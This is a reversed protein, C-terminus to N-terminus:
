RIELAVPNSALEIVQTVADGVIFAHHVSAGIFPTGVGPPLNFGASGNGLEDLVGFSGPLIASNPQTATIFDIVDQPVLCLERDYEEPARKRFGGPAGTWGIEGSEEAIEGPLSTLGAEIADEFGKESYDTSM